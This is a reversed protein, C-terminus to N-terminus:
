SVTITFLLRNETGNGIPSRHLVPVCKQGCLRGSIVLVDGANSRYRQKEDYIDLPLDAKRRLYNLFRTLHDGPNYWETGQGYYTKLLRREVYDEHWKPCRSSRMSTLRCTFNNEGETCTLQMATVLQKMDEVLDEDNIHLSLLSRIKFDFDSEFSDICTHDTFSIRVSNDFVEAPELRSNIFRAEQSSQWLIVSDVHDRSKSLASRFDAITQVSKISNRCFISLASLPCMIVVCLLASANKLFIM